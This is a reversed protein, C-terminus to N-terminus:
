DYEKEILFIYSGRIMYFACIFTFPLLSLEIKQNLLVMLLVLLIVCSIFAFLLYKYLIEKNILKHM